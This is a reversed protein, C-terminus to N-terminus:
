HEGTQIYKAFRDATALVSERSVVRHATKNEAEFELALELAKARARVARDAHATQGRQAISESYDSVLSKAADVFAGLAREVIVFNPGM